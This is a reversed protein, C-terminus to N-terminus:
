SAKRPTEWIPVAIGQRPRFEVLGDPTVLALLDYRPEPTSFVLKGSTDRKASRVEIKFLDGDFDVILDCAAAASMARYVTIGRQMLYAAVVLESAAGILGPNQRARPHGFHNTLVSM